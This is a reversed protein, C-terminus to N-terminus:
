MFIQVGVHLLIVSCNKLQNFFIKQGGDVRLARLADVEHFGEVVGNPIASTSLHFSIFIM